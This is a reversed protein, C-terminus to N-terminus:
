TILSLQNYCVIVHIHKHRCLFAYFWNHYLLFALYNALKSAFFPVIALIYLSYM